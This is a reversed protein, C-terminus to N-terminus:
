TSLMTDTCKWYTVGGQFFSISMDKKKKTWNKMITKGKIKKEREKKKRNITSVGKKIRHYSYYFLLM